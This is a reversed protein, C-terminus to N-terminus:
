FPLNIEGSQMKKVMINQLKKMADKFARKIEQELMNKNEPKLVDEDIFLEEIDQNGNITLKVRGNYTEVTIKEEELSKKMQSAQKRLNNMNKLKDLM